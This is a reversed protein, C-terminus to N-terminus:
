DMERISVVSYLYLLSGVGLLTFGVFVLVVFALPRPWVLCFGEVLLGLILLIGAFQLRRELLSAGLM